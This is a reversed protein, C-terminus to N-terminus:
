HCVGAVPVLLGCGFWPWACLGHVCGCVCVCRWRHALNFTGRLASLSGHCVSYIIHTSLEQADSVDTPADGVDLLTATRSECHAGAVGGVLLLAVM